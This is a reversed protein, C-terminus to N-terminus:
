DVTLEVTVGPHSAEFAATVESWMEAGYGGEFAAVKLVQEEVPAEEAADTQTEEEKTEEKAEEKPAEQQTSDSKNDAAPAQQTEGSGGCGALVTATMTLAMVASIVKKLKM